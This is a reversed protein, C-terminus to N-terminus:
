AGLLGRGGRCSLVQAAARVRSGPRAPTRGSVAEIEPITVTGRVTLARDATREAIWLMQMLNVYRAHEVRLTVEAAADLEKAALALGLVAKGPVTRVGRIGRGGSCFLWFPVLRSVGSLIIIYM